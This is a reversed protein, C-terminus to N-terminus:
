AASLGLVQALIVKEPDTFWVIGREKKGYTQETIGLQKAMDKQSLRLRERAIKIELPKMLPRM